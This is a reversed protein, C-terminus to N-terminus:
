VYNRLGQVTITGTSANDGVTILLTNEKQAINSYGLGSYGWIDDDYYAMTKWDFITEVNKNFNDINMVITQPKDTQYKNGQGSDTNIYSASSSETTEVKGTSDAGLIKRSYDTGVENHGTQIYTLKDDGVTRRIVVRLKIYNELETFYHQNVKGIEVFAIQEWMQKEALASETVVPDNVGNTRVLSM